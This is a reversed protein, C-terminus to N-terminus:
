GSVGLLFKRWADLKQEFSRGAHAPSTSPLVSRHIARMRADLGPEVCRRFLAAAATGNFGIREIRRHAALFARLDNPRVSRADIDADLAGRRAARECVDWLAIGHHPLQAAREAYPAGADFGLLKGMIRWFANRPHGYYQQRALSEPSPLTGLVLIRANAAAIPPFGRLRSVGPPIGM